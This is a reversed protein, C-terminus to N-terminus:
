RFSEGKASKGHIFCFASHSGDKPCICVDKLADSKIKSEMMEQNLWAAFELIMVEERPHMLPFRKKGITDLWETCKEMFM